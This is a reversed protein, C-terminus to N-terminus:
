VVKNLPYTYGREVPENKKLYNTIFQGCNSGIYNEEWEGISLIVDYGAETLADIIDYKVKEPMIHSEIGHIQAQLTPNVPTVKILFVDPSFHRLLVDPDVPMDKGLAFNLTIRRENNRYFDNAYDAIAKFDWKKVPILWDRLNMKTTHISFQLLFRDKYLHNKIELLREFFADCGGPAVTSITPLLGPAEYIQPLEQLVNLVNRNLAPEGMRAFQIKFKEMPVRGDPFRDMVMYDIQALMEEKTLKGKYYGGADCIPCRIPCGYMTSIILVWKKERPIPPQVSEVFEVCKGDQMEAIYVTAIEENESKAVIRM